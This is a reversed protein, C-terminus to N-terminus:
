KEKELLKRVRNLEEDTHVAGGSNMELYWRLVDRKTKLDNINIKMCYHTRLIGTFDKYYNDFVKIENDIFKRIATIRQLGDVCVFDDYKEILDYTNWSPKNLYIIKATKGGQLIFEVFRSSQKENWVHGRQFDPNLQLGENEVNDDIFPIIRNLPYDCEWQGHQTFKIIDNFDM